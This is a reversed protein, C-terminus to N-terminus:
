CTKMQEWQHLEQQQTKTLMGSKNPIKYNYEMPELHLVLSTAQEM